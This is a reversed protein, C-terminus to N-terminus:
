RARRRRSRVIRTGPEFDDYDIEGLEDDELIEWVIIAQNPQKESVKAKTREVAGKSWQEKRLLWEAHKSGGVKWEAIGSQGLAAFHKEVTNDMAFNPIMPTDRALETRCIACNAKRGRGNGAVNVVFVIVAPIAFIPLWLPVHLSMKSEQSLKGSMRTKKVKAKAKKTQPM